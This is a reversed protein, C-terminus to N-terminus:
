KKHFTHHEVQLVILMHLFFTASKAKDFLEKWEVDNFNRFYRIIGSQSINESIGGMELIEETTPSKQLANWAGSFILFEAMSLLIIGSLKEVFNPNEFVIELIAAVLLCILGLIILISAGLKRKSDINKLISM